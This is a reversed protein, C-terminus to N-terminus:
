GFSSKGFSVHKKELIRHVVELLVAVPLDVAPLVIVPLVEGLPVDVQLSVVSLLYKLIHLIICGKFSM